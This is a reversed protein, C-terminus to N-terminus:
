RAEFSPVFVLTTAIAEVGPSVAFSAALSVGSFWAFAGTSLAGSLAEFNFVNRPM